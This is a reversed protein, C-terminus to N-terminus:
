YRNSLVQEPTRSQDWRERPGSREYPFTVVVRVDREGAAALPPALLGALARRANDRAQALREPKQAETAASSQAAASVRQSMQDFAKRTVFLGRTESLTRRAEDVNAAGITVDPADIVLTRSVPDYRYDSPRLRSVDIFYDVSFPAKIVHDATLMGGLRSDSATAQVSGSLAGVKLASARSFTARVVQTVAQGDDARAVVYSDTFRDYLPKGIFVAAVLIVIALVAGVIQGPKVRRDVM